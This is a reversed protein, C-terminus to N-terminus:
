FPINDFDAAKAAPAQDAQWHPTYGDWLVNVGTRANGDRDTWEKHKVEVQVRKGLIISTDDIDMEGALAKDAQAMKADPNAADNDSLVAKLFSFVRPAAKKTWFMKDWVRRDKHDGDLIELTISWIPGKDNVTSEVELVRTQYTGAPLLEAQQQETRDEESFSWKTTM